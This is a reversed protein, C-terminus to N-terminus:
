VYSKIENFNIVKKRKKILNNKSYELLMQAAEKKVLFLNESGSLDKLMIKPRSVSAPM